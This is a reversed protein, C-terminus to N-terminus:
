EVSQPLLGENSYLAAIGRHLELAHRQAHSAAAPTDWVGPYRAFLARPARALLGGISAGVEHWSGACNPHLPGLLARQTRWLELASELLALLSPASPPAGSEELQLRIAALLERRVRAVALHREGLERM